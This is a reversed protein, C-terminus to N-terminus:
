KYKLELNMKHISRNKEIKERIRKRKSDDKELLLDILWFVCEEDFDMISFREKPGLNKDLIGQVEEKIEELKEPNMELNLHLIM